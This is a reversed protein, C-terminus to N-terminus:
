MRMSSKERSKGPPFDPSFGRWLGLISSRKTGDEPSIPFTILPGSYRAIEGVLEIVYDRKIEQHTPSHTFRLPAPTLPAPNPGYGFKRKM